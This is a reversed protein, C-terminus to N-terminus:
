NRLFIGAFASHAFIITPSITPSFCGIAAKRLIFFAMTKPFMVSTGSGVLNMKTNSAGGTLMNKQEFSM